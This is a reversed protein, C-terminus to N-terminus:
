KEKRKNTDNKASVKGNKLTLDVGKEVARKNAEVIEKLSRM